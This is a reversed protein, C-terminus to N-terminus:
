QFQLHRRVTRLWLFRAHELYCAFAAPRHLAECNSYYDSCFRSCCQDSASHVKLTIEVAIWKTRSNPFACHYGTVNNYLYLIDSMTNGNSRQHGKLHNFAYHYCMPFEVVKQRDIPTPSYLNFDWQDVERGILIWMEVNFHCPTGMLPIHRWNSLIDDAKALTNINCECFTDM